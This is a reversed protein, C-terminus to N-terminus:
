PIAQHYNEIELCVHIYAFLASRSLMSSSTYVVVAAEAQRAPKHTYRLKPKGLKSTQSRRRRGEESTTRGVRLEITQRSGSSSLLANSAYLRFQLRRKEQCCYVPPPPPDFRSSSSSSSNTPTNTQGDATREDMWGAAAALHIALWCCLSSQYLM